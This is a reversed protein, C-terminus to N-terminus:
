RGQLRKKAERAEPSQPYAQELKTLTSRYNATQQLQQYAQAQRLLAAPALINKPFQTALKNFEVAAEQYKGEQYFSDAVYYRAEPAKPGPPRGQLYQHFKGRADGFKKAQYLRMGDRYTKDDGVAATVAAPPPYGKPAGARTEKSTPPVSKGAEWQALRSELQQVRLELDRLKQAVDPQPEVPPAAYQPGPLPTPGPSEAAPAAEAVGGPSPGASRPPLYPYTASCGAALLLLVALAGMWVGSKM